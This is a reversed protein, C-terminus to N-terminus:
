SNEPIAHNKRSHKYDIADALDFAEAIQKDHPQNKSLRMRERAWFRITEAATVDHARLVFLHEDDAARNLCSNPNSLEESKKM